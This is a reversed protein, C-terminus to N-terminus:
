RDVSKMKTRSLPIEAHRSTHVKLPWGEIDTFVALGGEEQRCFQPSTHARLTAQSAAEEDKRTTIRAQGRLYTVQYMQHMSPHVGARAKRLDRDVKGRESVRGLM